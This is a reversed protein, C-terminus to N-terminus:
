VKRRSLNRMCAAVVAPLYKQDVRVYHLLAEAQKLAIEPFQVPNSIGRIPVSKELVGVKLVYNLAVEMERNFCDEVNTCVDNSM